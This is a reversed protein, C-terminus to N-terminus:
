GNRSTCKEYRAYSSSANIHALKSQANTFGTVGLCLVAAFLLTKLHKM